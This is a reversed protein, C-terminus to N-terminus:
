RAGHIYAYKGKNYEPHTQDQANYHENKTAEVSNLQKMLQQRKSEYKVEIQKILKKTHPTPSFTKETTM